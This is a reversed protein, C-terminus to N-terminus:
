AWACGRRHRLWPRPGRICLAAAYGPSTGLALISSHGARDGPMATSTVTALGGDLPGLCFHSSPFSLGTGWAKLYAEKLAWLQYFAPGLEAEDRACVRAAEEAHFFREALARFRRRPREAELDVGLEHKGVALLGRDQSHSLNFHLQPHGPLFPKGHEGLGLELAEPATDVYGALIRRLHSRGAALQHRRTADRLRELRAREEAHLYAEVVPARPSLDLHWIDVRDPTLCAGQEASM